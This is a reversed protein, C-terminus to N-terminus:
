ADETVHVARPQTDAWDAAYALAGPSGAHLTFLPQGREVFDGIRVHLDIGACPVKPAGALKAIRATNGFRRVIDEIEAHTLERPTDFFSAMDARFPIASPSVTEANLGKPAQKGPHNIQMWLQTGGRTGAAAWARLAPLQAESEIAVNGPEGLARRDVMVNGSICLGIGGDAWRAYLRDLRSTPQNDLTGLAESMASKALRNPIVAGCPLTLPQALLTETVAPKM